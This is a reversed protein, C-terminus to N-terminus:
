GLFFIILFFQEGHNVSMHKTLTTMEIITVVKDKSFLLFYVMIPNMQTGKVNDKTSSSM